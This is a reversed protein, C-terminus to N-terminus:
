RAQEDDQAPRFRGMEAIKDHETIVRRPAEQTFRDKVAKLRAAEEHKLRAGIHDDHFSADPRDPDTEVPDPLDWDPPPLGTIKPDSM